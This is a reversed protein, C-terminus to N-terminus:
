ACQVAFSQKTFPASHLLTDNEHM